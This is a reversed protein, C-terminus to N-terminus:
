RFLKIGYRHTKDTKNSTNVSSGHFTGSHVERSTDNAEQYHYELCYHTTCSSNDSDNYDEYKSHWLSKSTKLHIIVFRNKKVDKNKISINYEYENKTINVDFKSVNKDANFTYNTSTGLISINSEKYNKDILDWDVRAKHEFHSHYKDFVGFKITTNAEDTSLAYIDQPLLKIYYFSINKDPQAPTQEYAIKTTVNVDTFNVDKISIPKSRNKDIGCSINLEAIGKKFREIPLTWNFDFRSFNTDNKEVLKTDKTGNNDLYIGIFDKAIKNMKTFFSVNVDKGYCSSNFDEMVEDDKNAVKVTTNIDFHEASLNSDIAFYNRKSMRLDIITKYPKVHIIFSKSKILRQEDPTDSNDVKAFATDNKEKITLNIDGIESYTAITTNRGNAFKIDGKFEGTKCSVKTDNVEIEFSDDKSENYDQVDNGNKDIAHFTVNFDKKAYLISDIDTIDFSDPRIAFQDTSNTEKYNSDLPCNEDKDYIWQIYVTVNREAKTYKFLASKNNEDRFSTKNWDTLKEGTKSDILVSCVTGNFDQHKTNNETLSNITVNIDENVLKTTIYRKEEDDTDWCDFGLCPICKRIYGLYNYGDREHQYIRQIESSFLKKPYIKLEDMYGNFEQSHEYGGSDTDDLDQALAIAEVDLTDTYDIEVCGEKEGDIYICNKKDQRTWALHHWKGDSVNIDMDLSKHKNHIWPMFRKGTKFYFRLEDEGKKSNDNSASVLTFAGDQSTKIWTMITFDGMDDLVEKPIKKVVDDDSDNNDDSSEHTFNADRCLIGGVSTQAIQSTGKFDNSYELVDNEEHNWYCKDFHYDAHPCTYCYRKSGTYNKNRKGDNYENDYITKIDEKTLNRDELNYVKLEDIYGNFYTDDENAGAIYSPAKQAKVSKENSGGGFLGGGSDSVDKSTNEEGNVYLIMKKDKKYYAGVIHYWKNLNIESDSDLTYVKDDDLELSFRIKNDVIQLSNEKKGNMFIYSNGEETQRIWAMYAQSGTINFEDNEPIEVEEKNSAEFRGSHCTGKKATNAGNKATADIKNKTRDKVEKDEGKWFCEDMKYDAIPCASCSRDDGNYNKRDKENDYIDKIEDNSLYKDYFKLEDIYGNFEESHKYKGFTRNQNQAIVLGKVDFDGSSDDISFNYTNDGDVTLNGDDGYRRFVIHHWKDDSVNTDIEIEDITKGKIYPKFHKGDTFYIRLEDHTDKNSASVLTFAGDQSTKIWMMITINNDGNLANKNLVLLDDDLDSNDDESNHTFDGVHCIMGEVSNNNETKAYITSNGDYHNDTNDFIDYRGNWFCSDFRYNAQPTTYSSSDDSSGGGGLSGGGGGGIGLGYLFSFGFLIAWLFRKLKM